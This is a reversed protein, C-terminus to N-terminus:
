PVFPRTFHVLSQFRRVFAKDLNAKLNSALIALGSFAEMRQLLCNVEQNGYRDQGTDVSSRQGFLADAEDFFLLWNESQARDFVLGLNKETEGIYKSVVRSLDVSYVALGADQGLLTAALTKGTGPPGVFLSRYGTALQEVSAGGKPGTHRHQLWTRLAALASMTEPGLALDAWGLPTTLRQAAFSSGVDPTATPMATNATAASREDYHGGPPKDQPVSRAM